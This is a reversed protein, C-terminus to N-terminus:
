APGLDAGAGDHDSLRNGGVDNPWGWVKAAQLGPGHAIHDIGSRHCGELQGETAVTVAAFAQELAEAAKRSGHKGRPIRQNFDGAAVTTPAATALMKELLRLYRIHLEWPKHKKDVPYTVEAMHWPICIGLIPLPGIPTETVAGIFRTQDLGAIGVRDVKTWPEKSWIVVKREDPAFRSGRPPEAWLLHGGRADMSTRAETLVMVDPELAFLYDLAESGRPATPKKRELNWTLIRAVAM